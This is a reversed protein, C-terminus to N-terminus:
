ATAVIGVVVGWMALLILCSIGFVRMRVRVNNAGIHVQAHVVRVVFYIWALVQLALSHVPLLMGVLCVAYFLVPTEFLNIFHRGTKLVEETTPGENYTRFYKVNMQGSKVAHIRSKLMRYSVYTTLLVMAFM